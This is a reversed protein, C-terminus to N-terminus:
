SLLSKAENILGNLNALSKTKDYQAQVIERLAEKLKAIRADRQLLASECQKLLEIKGELVIKTIGLDEELMPIRNLLAKIEEPSYADKM